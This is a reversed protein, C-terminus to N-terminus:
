KDEEAEAPINRVSGRLLIDAKMLQIGPPVSGRGNKVMDMLLGAAKAGLARKPHRVTTLDLGGHPSVFSDDFGAMSIDGPVKIGQEHFFHYLVGALQDNYCVVASCGRISEMLPYGISRALRDDTYAAVWHIIDEDVPIGAEMLAAVYGSYRRMGQIDDFKFIGAIRRHGNEILHQTLRRACGADDILVSPCLDALEPYYNNMFVIPMERRLFEQYLGINPNPLSTKTGELLLGSVNSELMRELFRREAELKNYTIGFSIGYNEATFTEEIGRLMNPFIYEHFFSTLVGITKNRVDGLMKTVYTGSGHRRTVIGEKELGDIANRVTQRSISFKKCIFNESPLKAGYKFVNNEINEM